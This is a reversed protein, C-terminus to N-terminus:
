SGARVVPRASGFKELDLHDNLLVPIVRALLPGLAAVSTDKGARVSAGSMFTVEIKMYYAARQFPNSMSERVDNRTLAYHGNAHFFYLVTAADSASAAYRDQQAARFEVARVPLEDGPAGIGPVRVRVTEASIKDYGAAQWCIDPEHPVLDPKGTYYTVFLLAVRTPDSDPTRTDMLYAQLYDHTGLTETMDETMPEQKDTRGKDLEYDPGLKRADFLQLQRKLPVAEKRLVVGLKWAAGKLGLAAFVLVGLCVWYRASTHSVPTAARPAASPAPAAATAEPKTSWSAMEHAVQSGGSPKLMGSCQPVARPASHELTFRRPPPRM